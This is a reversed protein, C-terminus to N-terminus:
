KNKIKLNLFNGDRSDVMSKVRTKQKCLSPSMEESLEQGLEDVRDLDRALLRGKQRELEAHTKARAFDHEHMCRRRVLARRHELRHSLQRLKQLVM